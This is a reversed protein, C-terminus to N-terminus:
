LLLRIVAQVTQREKLMTQLDVQGMKTFFVIYGMKKKIKVTIFAELDSLFM